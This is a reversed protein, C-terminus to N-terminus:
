KYALGVLLRSCKLGNALGILNKFEQRNTTKTQEQTLASAEWWNPGPTPGPEFGPTSAMHPNLKNKTREKVGVVKKEPYELTGWEWFVLM